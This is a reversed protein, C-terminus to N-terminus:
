QVGRYYLGRTTREPPTGTGQQYAQIVREIERTNETTFCLRLWRLGLGQLDSLKDALWLKEANYLTSRCHNEQLIPFSRGTKDIIANGTGGCAKGDRACGDGHRKTICNETIMLPLRGYALIQCDVGLSMDRIQALNMEFSLTCSSLGQERLEKVSQSNMANLSFDGHLTFDLRGVLPLQGLNTCVLHSFGAERLQRLRELVQPWQSDFIVRDLVAAFTLGKEALAQLMPLNATMEELPLYIAEPRARLIAATLQDARLFSFIWGPKEGYPLRKVGPQWDGTRRQPPMRRQLALGELCQRRMANITSASARLGPELLIEIQDPSFVTGGTKTLASSVEEKKTARSRAPEAPQGATEYRNGEQDSVTLRMEEGSKATFTMRVPVCPPEPQAQYLDRARKYLARAAKGGEEQRTGFMHSGLKGTFYGDTFGERSFVTQLQDLEDRSPPRKETLAKKYISTVLATYEPRKMRGEIKLTHVGAQELEELHRALSLDKVSLPYVLSGGFYSYAMRCPQACLGRNGSRGGIASSLYCQGSYCMCLAGHVFIEIELPSRKCIFAIEKLPLERSLVVRSFGLKEAALVGGLNHLTMQTSAHLPLDPALTRIMRAMGLDQVIVADAGLESLKGILEKARLLERDTVLTNVTVYTKVGRLRCYRFAEALQNDELNKANRRANFDGAGFYVADAGGRVAAVVGELSGAPSMLEMPM